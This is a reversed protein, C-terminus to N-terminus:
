LPEEVRYNKLSSYKKKSLLSFGELGNQCLSICTEKYCNHQKINGTFTHSNHLTTLNIKMFLRKKYSHIDKVTNTKKWKGNNQSSSYIYMLANIYPVKGIM